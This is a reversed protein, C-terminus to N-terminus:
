DVVPTSDGSQLAAGSVEKLRGKAIPSSNSSKLRHETSGRKGAAAVEGRVTLESSQAGAARRAGLDGM